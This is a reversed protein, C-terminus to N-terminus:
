IKTFYDVPLLSCNVLLHIKTMFLLEIFLIKYLNRLTLEQFIQLRTSNYKLSKPLFRFCSRCLLAFIEQIILKNM